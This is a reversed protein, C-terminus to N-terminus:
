VHAGPLAYNFYGLDIPTDTVQQISFVKDDIFAVAAARADEASSFFNIIKEDKMLAYQGRHSVILAPLERLFADYNRDVEDQITPMRAEEREGGVM